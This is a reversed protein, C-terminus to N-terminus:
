CRSMDCQSKRVTQKTHGHTPAFQRPTIKTDADIACFTWVDGYQPDDDVRLHREKKGIFGWIEDFQLYQCPLDRMKADLLAVCGTGVKVGLRMITDRHIGTMREISRISSGEALAGIVAIQKDTNLVNAMHSVTNCYPRRTLDKQAVIQGSHPYPQQYSGECEQNYIPLFGLGMAVGVFSVGSGFAFIRGVRSSALSDYYYILLCGFPLLVVMGLLRFAGIKIQKQRGIDGVGCQHENAESTDYYTNARESDNTLLNGCCFLASFSGSFRDDQGMSRFDKHPIHHHSPSWQHMSPSADPLQISILEVVPLECSGEIDDIYPVLSGCDHTRFLEQEESMHKWKFPWIFAPSISLYNRDFEFWSLRLLNRKVRQGDAFGFGSQNGASRHYRYPSDGVFVLKTITSLGSEGSLKVPKVRTEYGYAIRVILICVLLGTSIWILVGGGRAVKQLKGNLRNVYNM